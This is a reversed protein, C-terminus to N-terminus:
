NKPSFMSYEALEAIARLSLIRFCHDNDQLMGLLIGLLGMEM